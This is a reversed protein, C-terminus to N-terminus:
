AAAEESYPMNKARWEAAAAAADEENTYACGLYVRKGNVQAYAIWKGRRKNFSVGRYRSHRNPTKSTNQAQQRDDVIRLNARRNDLRDRNIHDVQRKDGRELGMIVRHMLVKPMAGGVRPGRWHTRKYRGTSMTSMAYGQSMLAWHYPSLAEWDDKDVLVWARIGGTRDHLPIRYDM